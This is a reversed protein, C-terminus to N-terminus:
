FQAAQLPGFVHAGAYTLLGGDMEQLAEAKKGERALLLARVLRLRFNRLGEPAAREVTKRAMPLDGADLHVRALCAIAAPNQPDQELIRDQEQIAGATDGEERLLDGLYLHPPWELPARAIVQRAEQIARATDGNIHHYLIRWTHVRPDNPNVKLAQDAEAQFLEKRGQLLYVVAFDTHAQGCDPDDLLARRAEESATYLLNSDNSAGSWLLMVHNWAYLARAAAFKPDVELARELMRGMQAPDGRPGTSGFLLAREYYDNAAAKASRRSGNSLPKEILATEPRVRWLGVGLAGLAMAAAAAAAFIWRRRSPQVVAPVANWVSPRIAQMASRLDVLMDDMYQYREEPKKALAKGVIRDLELPVGARIATIPEYPEHIISYVVAAGRVGEFPLRGTLMEYLVVGLSWIDTRRDTVRNQAQEPSMYAPTGMISDTETLRISGTLQALGFDMVKVQGTSTLMLNSSKIDRHVVGKQHALRLGEAAQIAIDLAEDLKLPREKIKERVELGDIFGLALFIRGDVEGIEHVICINPHDLSAVTRAERLFRQKHEESELLHPALFKLAVTRDLNLDEAKYVVGM